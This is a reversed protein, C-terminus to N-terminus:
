TMLLSVIHEIDAELFDSELGKPSSPLVGNNCTSISRESDTREDDDLEKQASVIGEMSCSSTSAVVPAALYSSEVVKSNCMSVPPPVVAPVQSPPLCSTTNTVTATTIALTMPLSNPVTTASTTTTTAPSTASSTTSVPAPPQSSLSTSPSSSDHGPLLLTTKTDYDYLTPDVKTFDIPSPTTSYEEDSEDSPSNHTQSLTSPSPSSLSPPVHDSDLNTHFGNLGNLRKTTGNVLLAGPRCLRKSKTECSRMAIQEGDPFSDDCWPAVTSSDESESELSARKGLHIGNSNSQNVAPKDSDSLLRAVHIESGSGDQMSGGEVAESEMGGGEVGGSGGGKYEGNVKVCNGEGKEVDSNDHFPTATILPSKDFPSADLKIKKVPTPSSLPTSLGGNKFTNSLFSDSSSCSDSSIDCDVAISDDEDLLLSHGQLARLANNILVFRLLRGRLQEQQLKFISLDFLTQQQHEIDLHELTSSYRRKVGCHM